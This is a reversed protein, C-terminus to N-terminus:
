SDKFSEWQINGPDRFAIMLAMGARNHAPL